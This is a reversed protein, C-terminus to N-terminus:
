GKRRMEAAVRRAIEDKDEESMPVPCVEGNADLCGLIGYLDMEIPVYFTGAQTTSTSLPDVQFGNPVSVLASMQNSSNPPGSKFQCQTFIPNAPQTNYDDIQLSPNVYRRVPGLLQTTTTPGFALSVSTQEGLTQYIDKLYPKRWGAGVAMATGNMRFANLISMQVGYATFQMNNAPALSGNNTQQNNAVSTDQVGLLQGQLTAPWGAAAGNQGAGINFMQLPTTLAACVIPDGNNAVTFPVLVKAYMAHLLMQAFEKFKDNCLAGAKAKITETWQGPRLYPAEPVYLEVVQIENKETM